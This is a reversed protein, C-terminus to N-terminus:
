PSKPSRPRSRIPWAVPNRRINDSANRCSRSRAKVPRKASSSCIRRTACSLRWRRTMRSQWWIPLSLSRTGAMGNPKTARRAPRSSGLAKEIVSLNARTITEDLRVLLDGAKVRDGDRVLLESVVGGTPHQVSKVNSDVVLMGPAVVAGSLSTTVAWGGVGLTLFFVTAGGIFLLRRIDVAINPQTTKAM